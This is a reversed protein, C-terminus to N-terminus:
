NGSPQPALGLRVAKLIAAAKTRVGLTARISKMHTRVTEEDISARRAVEAMSSDAMSVVLTLIEHERDTLRPHRRTGLPSDSKMVAWVGPSFYTGGSAIIQAIFAIKETMGDNKLIYASVDINAAARVLDLHLQHSVIGIRTDPYQQKVMAIAPMALFSNEESQADAPMGVDLFVIDPKHKCVLDVFDAGNRGLGVIKLGPQSELGSVIGGLFLPSDDVCVITIADANM